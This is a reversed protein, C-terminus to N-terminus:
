NRNQVTIPELSNSESDNKTPVYDTGTSVANLVIQNPDLQRSGPSGSADNQHVSISCAKDEGFCTPPTSSEQWNSAETVQAADDTDGQFYLTVMSQTKDEALKFASFGAITAVAVIAAVINNKLNKM